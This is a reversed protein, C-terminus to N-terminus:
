TQTSEAVPNRGGRVLRTFRDGRDEFNVFMDYSACAPSLLVRDGPGALSRAREVACEITAERHIPIKPRAAAIATEIASATKGILVAARARRAIVRGLEGFPTGKDYGGAILIARPGLAELACIASEPTTAISDNYYEVGEETHILELRHPVPKFARAASRVVDPGVGMALAAAAAGACNILNFRGRLNLDGAALVPPATEAIGPLGRAIADGEPTVWLGAARPIVGSSCGFYAVRRSLGEAWSRVRTDGGNLIAWATGEFGDEPSELIVRKAAAYCEYTGHRDLHNSSLNTVLSISPRRRISALDELQFSSLELVVWDDRRISEVEGLLSRGLNGGLRTRPFQAAAMEGLLRTTTTKGNSGTVAAIRGPCLKFFLNMETEIPIDRDRCLRVLPATRPVAPNVFVVDAGLFDEERHKGLVFRVPLRGLAALTSGLRKEDALDTVTVRAGWRCLAETLGRGGGFLGLGMVTVNKGALDQPHLVETTFFSSHVTV